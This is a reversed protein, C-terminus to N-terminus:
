ILIPLIFDTIVKQLTRKLHKSQLLVAFFTVSLYLSKEICGFCTYNGCIDPVHSNDFCFREQRCTNIWDICSGDTCQFKEKCESDIFNVIILCFKDLKKNM